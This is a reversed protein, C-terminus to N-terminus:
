TQFNYGRHQLQQMVKTVPVAASTAYAQTTHPTNGLLGQKKHGTADSPTPFLPPRRPPAPMVPGQGLLSSPKAPSAVPPDWSTSPPKTPASPLPDWSTAPPRRGPTKSFPAPAQPRPLLPVKGGRPSTKMSPPTPPEIPQTGLQFEALQDRIRSEIYLALLPNALNLQETDKGNLFDGADMAKSGPSKPVFQPALPNLQSVITDTESKNVKEELKKDTPSDGLLGTLPQTAKSTDGPQGASSSSPTDGLLGTAPQTPQPTDGLLGSSPPKIQPTDGLLGTSPPKIQPTDGLLGSSPPKVQPTDGLLGTSLSQTPVPLLGPSASKAQQESAAHNSTPKDGLLGTATQDQTPKNGLLGTVAQSPTPKAGLLGPQDSVPKDGLLAPKVVEKQKTDVSNAPKVEASAVSSSRSSAQSLTSLLENFNNFTQSGPPPPPSTHQTSPQPQSALFPSTSDSPQQSLLCHLMANAQAILPNGLLPASVAAPQPAASSSM